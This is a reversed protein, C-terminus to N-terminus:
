TLLKLSFTFKRIKTRKQLDGLFVVGFIKKVSSIAIGLQNEGVTLRIEEEQRALGDYYYLDFRKQPRRIFNVVFGFYNDSFM